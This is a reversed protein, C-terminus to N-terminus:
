DCIQSKFFNKEYSKGLYEIPMEIKRCIEKVKDRYFRKPITNMVNEIPSAFLKDKRMSSSVWEFHFLYEMDEYINNYLETGMDIFYAPVGAKVTKLYFSFGTDKYDNEATTYDNYYYEFDSIDDGLCDLEKLKKINMYSLKQDISYCEFESTSAKRRVAAIVNEKLHPLFLPTPDKFFVMDSDLTFVYDTHIQKYATQFIHGVRACLNERQISHIFRNHNYEDWTIVKIGRNELEERTGDTSNDDFFVVQERKFPSCALFSEIALVVFWKVNHGPVLITTNEIINKM